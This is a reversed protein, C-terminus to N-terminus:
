GLPTEVKQFLEKAIAALEKTANAEIESITEFKRVKLPKKHKPFLLLRSSCPWILLPLHFCPLRTNPWFSVVESHQTPRLTTTISFGTTVEWLESRKRRLDDKLRKLVETYYIQNVTTGQPLYEHHVVGKAYFFQWYWMSMRDFKALKQIKSVNSGGLPIIPGENWQWLWFGHKM